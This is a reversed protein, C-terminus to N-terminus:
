PRVPEYLYIKEQPKLDMEKRITDADVGLLPHLNLREWLPKKPSPVSLSHQGILLHEKGKIENSYCQSGGLLKYCYLKQMPQQSGKAWHRTYLTQADPQYGSFPNCGGLILLIFLIIM